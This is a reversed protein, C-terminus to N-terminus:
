IEESVVVTEYCEIFMELRNFERLKIEGTNWINELDDIDLADEVVGTELDPLREIEREIEALERLARQHSKNELETLPIEVQSMDDLETMELEDFLYLVMYYEELDFEHSRNDAPYANLYWSDPRDLLLDIYEAEIGVEGRRKELEQSIERRIEDTETSATQTAYNLIRRTTLSSM